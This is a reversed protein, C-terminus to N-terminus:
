QIVGYIGSWTINVAYRLCLYNLFPFSRLWSWNKGTFLLVLINKLYYVLNRRWEEGGKKEIGLDWLIISGSFRGLGAVRYAMCPVQVACPLIHVQVACPLDHVATRPLARWHWPKKGNGLRSWSGDNGDHLARREKWFGLHNLTSCKSWGLRGGYM